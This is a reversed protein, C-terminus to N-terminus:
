QAGGASSGGPGTKKLATNKVIQPLFIELNLLGTQMPYFESAIRRCWILYVLYLGYSAAWIDEMFCCVNNLEQM